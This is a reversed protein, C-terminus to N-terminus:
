QTYAEYAGKSGGPYVPRLKGRVSQLLNKVEIMEAPRGADKMKANYERLEMLIDRRAAFDKNQTAEVLRSSFEGMRESRRSRAARINDATARRENMSVPQFGLAKGAAEWPKLKVTELKGTEPNRAMDPAGTRTKSGETALRLAALPQKIANPALDEGARVLKGAALSKAARVGSSVLGATPGVFFKALAAWQADESDGRAKLGTDTPNLSGSIDFGFLAPIGRFVFRAAAPSWERLEEEPDKDFLKRFAAALGTGVLGSLAMTAGLNRGLAQFAAGKHDGKVSAALNEMVWIGYHWQYARFQYPLSGLGRAFAPRDGKGYNFHARDVLDLAGRRAADVSQGKARLARYAALYTAGRNFEEVKGFMLGSIWSAKEMGMKAARYVPNATAGGVQEELQAGLEGTDEAWKMAQTEDPSLARKGSKWGAWDMAAKTLKVGPASTVKGLEPWAMTAMSTLNVAASKFAGGLIMHFNIAKLVAYPDKSSDLTYGMWENLNKWLVPQTEENSYQFVDEKAQSYGDFMAVKGMWGAASAFADANTRVIDGSFGPIGVAGGSRRIYHAGYGKSRVFDLLRSKVLQEMEADLPLDHLFASMMKMRVGAKNEYIQEAKHGTTLRHEASDYPMDVPLSEGKEGEAWDRVKITGDELGRMADHYEQPTEYTGFFLPLANQEAGKGVITITYNGYRTHPQYHAIHGQWPEINQKFSHALQVLPDTVHVVAWKGKAGEARTMYAVKGGRQMLDLYAKASSKSIYHKVKMAVEGGRYNAVINQIAGPDGPSDMIDKIFAKADGINYHPLDKEFRSTFIELVYKRVTEHTTDLAALGEAERQTLGLKVYEAADGEPVSQNGELKYALAAVNRQEKPKLSFFPKAGEAFEKGKSHKEWTGAKYADWFPGVVKPYKRALHSMLSIKMGIDRLMGEVKPAHVPLAVGVDKSRIEKPVLVRESLGKAMNAMLGFAEEADKAQMARDADDPPTLGDAQFLWQPETALTERMSPTIDLSHVNSATGIDATGVRGGYKKALENMTNPLIQDYFGKMGEGGITLDETKLLKWEDPPQNNAAINETVGEGGIIKGAIDKGVTESLKDATLAEGLTKGGHSRTQASVQYTGDPNPKYYLHRVEQLLADKYREAQQEGTTWGIRDYGHDVAWRLMRKLALSPWSKKFPADPVPTETTGRAKDNLRNIAENIIGQRNPGRSTIHDGNPADVHYYTGDQQRTEKVTYGDPLSTHAPKDGAYGAERGKQHWDSQVEELFLVKKGEADTRDNFRVHALINPESFHPSTYNTVAPGRRQERADLAEYLTAPQGDITWKGGGLRDVGDTKEPLTLLLERYNEGGPLQYQSFKPPHAQHTNALARTIAARVDVGVGKIVGASDLVWKQGPAGDVVKWGSPLTEGKVVDVVKVSREQLVQEVEAKTVTDKGSLENGIVWDAEEAKVGQSKLFADFAGKAMRGPMKASVVAQLKSAFTPLVRDRETPDAQELAGGPGFMDGGFLSRNKPGPAAKPRPGADPAAKAVEGFLTAEKGFAAHETPALKGASKQALAKIAKGSKTVLWVREPPISHNEPFGQADQGKVWAPEIAKANGYQHEQSAPLDAKRVAVYAVKGFDVPIDSFSGATMGEKRIAELTSTDLNHYVWGAGLKEGAKPDKTDATDGFLNGQDAQELPSKSETVPSAVNESGPRSGSEPTPVPGQTDNVGSPVKWMTQSALVGGKIQSEVYYITGNVRKSFVVSERGHKQAPGRKVSDFSQLIDPIRKIDQPTLAIQGRRAEVQADGHEKLMHRISDAQIIHRIVKRGLAHGIKGSADVPTSKLVMVRQFSKDSVARDVLDSVARHDPNNPDAQELTGADTDKVWQDYQEGYEGRMNEHEGLIFTQVMQMAEDTLPKGALARDIEDLAYKKSWGQDKFYNPFTSGIRRWDKASGRGTTETPIRDGAQGGEIAIRAGELAVRDSPTMGADTKWVVEAGLMAKFVNKIEPTLKHSIPSGALKPYIETLWAKFQAFVKDLAYSGPALNKGKESPLKPAVGERLWREFARAFKEEQETTWTISDAGVFENASLALKIDITALRRRFIHALEHPVTSANANGKFLEIVARLSSDFHLQGRLISKEAQRVKALSAKGARVEAFLEGYLRDKGYAHSPNARYWSAAFADVLAGAATAWEPNYGAGVLAAEFEARNRIVPSAGTEPPRTPPAKPPTTLPPSGPPQGGPASGRATEGAVITSGGPRLGGQNENGPALTGPNADPVRLHGRGEPVPGPPGVPPGSQLDNSEETPLIHPTGGQKDLDSQRVKKLEDFSRWVQDGDVRFRIRRVDFDPNIHVEGVAGGEPRDNIVADQPFVMAVAVGDGPATHITGKKAAYASITSAEGSTNEFMKGLRLKANDLIYALEKTDKYRVASGEPIHGQDIAEAVARKGGDELQLM